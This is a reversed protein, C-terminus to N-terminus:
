AARDLKREAQQLRQEIVRLDSSVDVHKTRARARIAALRQEIPLEAYAHRREAEEHEQRARGQGVFTLEQVEHHPVKEPEPPRRGPNANLQDDDVEIGSDVKIEMLEVTDPYFRELDAVWYWDSGSRRRYFKKIAIRCARLQFTQGLEVPAGQGRDPWAITDVEGQNIAERKGALPDM